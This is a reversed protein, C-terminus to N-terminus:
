LVNNMYYDITGWNRQKYACNTIVAPNNRGCCVKEKLLLASRRAEEM